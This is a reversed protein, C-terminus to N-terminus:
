LCCWWRGRRMVPAVVWDGTCAAATAWCSGQVAACRQDDRCKGACDLYKQLGCDRRRARKRRDEEDSGDGTLRLRRWRECGCSIRASRWGAAVIDSCCRRACGDQVCLGMVPAGGQRCGAERM